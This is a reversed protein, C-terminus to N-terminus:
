VASLEFRFLYLIKSCGAPLMLIVYLLLVASPRLTWSFALKAFVSPLTFILAMRTYAFRSRAPPM